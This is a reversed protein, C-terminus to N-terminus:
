QPLVAKETRGELSARMQRFERHLRRQGGGFLDSLSAFAVRLAASIDGRQKRGHAKLIHFRVRIILRLRQRIRRSGGRSVPRQPGEAPGERQQGHDRAAASIFVLPDAIQGDAAAAQMLPEQRPAVLDQAEHFLIHLAVADAAIDLDPRRAVAAPRRQGVQDCRKEGVSSGSIQAGPHADRGLVNIGIGEGRRAGYARRSGVPLKPADRSRAAADVRRIRGARGVGGARLAADIRLCGNVAPDAIEQQRIVQDGFYRRGRPAIGPEAPHKGCLTAPRRFLHQLREAPDRRRDAGLCLAAAVDALEERLRPIKGSQLFHRRFSFRAGGSVRREKGTQQRPQRAIHTGGLDVCVAPHLLRQLRKRDKRAAQALPQDDRLGRFFASRRRIGGGTRPLFRRRLRRLVRLREPFRAQRRLSQPREGERIQGIRGLTQLRFVAGGRVSFGGRDHDFFQQPKQGSLRDILRGEGDIIEQDQRRPDQGSFLSRRSGGIQRVRQCAQDRFFAARHQREQQLLEAARVFLVPGEPIQQQRQQLGTRLSRLRSRRCREQQAIRGTHTLRQIQRQRQDKRTLDRVHRLQQTMVAPSGLVPAGRKRTQDAREKGTKQRFLVRLPRDEVLIGGQGLGGIGPQGYKKRDPQCLLRRLGPRRRAAARRGAHRVARPGPLALRQQCQPFVHAGQPFQDGVAQKVLASFSETRRGIQLAQGRQRVARGDGGACVVSLHVQGPRPRLIPRRFRPM